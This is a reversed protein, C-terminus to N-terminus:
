PKVPTKTTLSLEDPKKGAPRIPEPRRPPPAVQEVPRGGISSQGTSRPGPSGSLSITMLKPKPKEHFLLGKPLLLIVALAVHLTFSAMMVRRFGRLNGGRLVLVDDITEKM